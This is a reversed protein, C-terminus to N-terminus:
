RRQEISSIGKMIESRPAFKEGEYRVGNPHINGVIFARIDQVDRDWTVLVMNGTTYAYFVYHPEVTRWGAYAGHRNTYDFGIVEPPESKMADELLSDPDKYIIEKIADPTLYENTTPIEDMYDPRTPEDTFQEQQPHEEKTPEEIDDVLYDKLNDDGVLHDDNEGFWDVDEIEDRWTQSWRRIHSSYIKLM